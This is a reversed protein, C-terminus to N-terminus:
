PPREDFGSQHDAYFDKLSSTAKRLHIRRTKLSLKRQKKCSIRIDKQIKERFRDGQVCAVRKELLDMEVKLIQYPDLQYGFRKSFSRSKLLHEHYPHLVIRSLNKEFTTVSRDGHELKSYTDDFPRYMM